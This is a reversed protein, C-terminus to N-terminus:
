GHFAGRLRLGASHISPAEGCRAILADLQTKLVNASPMRRGRRWGIIEDAQMDEGEPEHREV